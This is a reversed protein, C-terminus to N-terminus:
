EEQEFLFGYTMGAVVNFNEGNKLTGKYPGIISQLRCGAPLSFSKEGGSKAHIFLIDNGVWVPDSIMQHYRHVGAKDLLKAYLEVPLNTLSTLYHTAGNRKKIVMLPKKQADDGVVADYGSVPLFWPSTETINICNISGYEPTTTMTPQRKEVVMAMKVGLFDACNAATPGNDPYFPAAAYLWVVAAKEREFRLLLQERQEKSLVLTPLMIYFKHAPAMISDDLLDSVLLSHFPAALENFRKFLGGIAAPFLSGNQATNTYYVSDRDSVIAVEVPTMGKVQPLAQYVKFQESILGGIPKEFIAGVSIDYWYLNCGTALSMGLSRNFHGVSEVASDPQGVYVKMYNPSEQPGYASRHDMEIYVNKGHLLLTDWTQMIGDPMGTKRYTYRSPGHLFDIYPSKAVEWIGNHGSLHIVRSKNDSLETNYGYYAGTLWKGGTEHKIIKGFHIIAEALARSRFGFWDILQRDRKIDLLVGISDQQSRAVEPMPANELTVGPMNWAAALAADTLYKETLYSRFTAYDAPSYGAWSTNRSADVNGWFWEGNGNEAISMGWVRYGYSSKKVHDIMAKLPAETDILWKKSALAQMDRGYNRAHNGLHASTDKPNAALWWEPTHVYLHIAFVADPAASLLKYVNEDFKTFDYQGDGKWIDIFDARLRFNDFGFGAALGFESTTNTKVGHWFIPNIKRNGFQIFSRAGGGFKAQVLGPAPSVPKKIHALEPNGAIEVFDDALFLHSENAKTYPLPYTITIEEGKRWSSSSPTIPVDIERDGLIQDHIRFRLQNDAMTPLSNVRVKMKGPTLQLATLRGRQGAYRYGILDKWPPTENPLGLLVVPQNIQQPINHSANSKAECRWDAGTDLFYEKGQSKVYIDAALGADLTGNFVRVTIKNAGKKLFETIEFRCPIMWLGTKGVERDNVYIYCNDDALVAVAGYEPKFDLNFKKEFWVNANFPGLEKQSWIWQGRWYGAPAFLRRYELQELVPMGQGKQDVSVTTQVMTDPTTFEVSKSEGPPLAVATGFIEQLNYDYFKLTAGPSTGGEWRFCCRARPMVKASPFEAGPAIAAANPILNRVGPTSMANIGIKGPEGHWELQWNTVTGKWNPQSNLDFIMTHYKGDPIVSQLPPGVSKRSGNEVSICAFAFYGPVESMLSFEIQKIKTTDWQLDTQYFGCRKGSDVTIELAHTVPHIKPQGFPRISRKVAIGQLTRNEAVSQSETASLEELSLESLTVPASAIILLKAFVAGRWMQNPAAGFAPAPLAVVSFKEGAAAAEFQRIGFTMWGGDRHQRIMTGAPYSQKLPPAFRVKWSEGSRVAEQVYYEVNRNPLDSLDSKAHLVAIPAQKAPIWKSADSVEITESGRVCAASLMTETGPVPNVHSPLIVRKEADFFALGVVTNGSGTLKGDLRYAKNSDIPIFEGLRLIKGTEKVELRSELLLNKSHAEPLAMVALATIFVIRVITYIRAGHGLAYSCLEIASKVGDCTKTGCANLVWNTSHDWTWFFKYDKIQM